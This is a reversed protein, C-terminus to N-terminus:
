LFRIPSYMLTINVSIAGPTGQILLLLSSSLLLLMARTNIWVWYIKWAFKSQKILNIQIMEKEETSINQHLPFVMDACKGSSPIVTGHVIFSKFAYKQRRRQGGIYLHWPLHPYPDPSSVYTLIYLNRFIMSSTCINTQKLMYNADGSYARHIM